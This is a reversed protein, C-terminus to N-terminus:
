LEAELLFLTPANGCGGKSARWCMLSQQINVKMLGDWDYFGEHLVDRIARRGELWGPKKM